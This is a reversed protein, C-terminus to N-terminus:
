YPIQKVILTKSAIVELGFLGTSTYIYISDSNNVDKTDKYEFVIEKITENYKVYVLPYRQYSHKYPGTMSSKSLIKYKGVKISNSCNYYNLSMFTCMLVSGFALTNLIFQIFLNSILYYKIWVSRIFFTLVVGVGIWIAFVIPWYILTLRYLQIQFIWSIVGLIIFTTLTNRLIYEKSYKSKM